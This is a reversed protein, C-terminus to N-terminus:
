GKLRSTLVVYRSGEDSVLGNLRAAEVSAMKEDLYTAVPSIKNEVESGMQFDDIRLVIFAHPFKANPKNAAESMSRM